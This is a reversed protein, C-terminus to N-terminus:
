TRSTRWTCQPHPNSHGDPLVHHANNRWVSSPHVPGLTRKESLGEVEIGRIYRWGIVLTEGYYCYLTEAHIRLFSDLYSRWTCPPNNDGNPLVHHAKSRWVSSSSHIALVPCFTCKKRLAKLRKGWLNRVMIAIYHRYDFPLPGDGRLMYDQTRLFSDLYSPHLGM